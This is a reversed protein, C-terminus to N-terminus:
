RSATRQIFFEYRMKNDFNLPFIVMEIEGNLLKMLENM